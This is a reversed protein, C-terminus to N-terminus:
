QMEGLWVDALPWTEAPGPTKWDRVRAGLGYVRPIWVLPVIRYSNVIAHEMDYVQQPTAERPLSDAKQGTMSGLATAFHALADGPNPSSMELRVVRADENSSTGPKVAVATVSGGAERADVAIREAISQELSDNADYGLLIKSSGAAQTWLNKAAVADATTTFLFATGSSWQPLLGGAPEGEKQLIFNVVAARDISRSLAERVHADESTSHGHVFVLAVLDDPQSVAVRVGSASTRRAEEAPIEVIDAKDLQLDLLRDRWTRGMEIAVSDVFARGGRYSPNAVLMLHKGPEWEAIRFPGSGGVGALAGEPRQGDNLLACIEDKAALEEATAGPVSADLSTVIAGIEVRLMGGYQPRRAPEARGAMFLVASTVALLVFSRLKM